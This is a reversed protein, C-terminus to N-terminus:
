SQVMTVLHTVELWVKIGKPSDVLLYYRGLGAGPPLDARLAEEGSKVLNAVPLWAGERVAMVLQQREPLLNPDLTDILLWSTPSDLIFINGHFPNTRGDRPPHIRERASKHLRRQQLMDPPTVAAQRKADGM